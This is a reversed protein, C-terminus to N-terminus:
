FARSSSHKASTTTNFCAPKCQLVSPPSSGSLFRAPPRPRVWRISQPPWPDWFVWQLSVSVCCAFLRFPFRFTYEWPLVVTFTRWFVRVFEALLTVVSPSKHTRMYTRFYIKFEMKELHCLHNTHFHRAGHWCPSNVAYLIFSERSSEFIHWTWLPMSSQTGKQEPTHLGPPINEQEVVFQRWYELPLSLLREM